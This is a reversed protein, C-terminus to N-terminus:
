RLAAKLQEAAYAQAEKAQLVVAAMGFFEHTVGEYLKMSVNVGAGKLKESLLKGESQLPDIEACIITTAPLGKLNANVLNIMPEKAENINNLYNKVFWQMMKKNLPKADAYKKYSKNEMDSGAVPYVLLQHVPVM